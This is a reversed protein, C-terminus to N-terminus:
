VVSKRDIAKQYLNPQKPAFKAGFVGAVPGFLWFVGLILGLIALKLVFINFVMFLVVIVFFLSFNAEKLKVISNDM